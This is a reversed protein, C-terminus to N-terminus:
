AQYSLMNGGNSDFFNPNCDYSNAKPYGKFARRVCKLQTEFSGM